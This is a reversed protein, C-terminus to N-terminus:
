LADFIREITKMASPHGFKKYLTYRPGVYINNVDTPVDKFSDSYISNVFFANAGTHSNCCVLQYNFKNFLKILSALSAGFYDDYQWIHKPDYAIEFEVPPPFKANYEAIFLKPRLGAELLSRIFHIDNGDLDLSIVDVTEREIAKLCQSSINHINDLTIWEKAYQFRSGRGENINPRLTEGGVWFGRWGLAALILTNNETGDGVGYEAYTGNNLCNIRRLIEITIGDEDTQSFCKKGFGNLPNPHALQAKRTEDYIHLDRTDNLDRLLSEIAHFRQRIAPIPNLINMNKLDLTIITKIANNYM